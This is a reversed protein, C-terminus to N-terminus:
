STTDQNKAGSEAYMARLAGRMICESNICCFVQRRNLAVHKKAPSMKGARSARGRKKERSNDLSAVKRKM